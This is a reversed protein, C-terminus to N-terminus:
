LVASLFSIGKSTMGSKIRFRTKIVRTVHTVFHPTSFFVGEGKIGRGWSSLLTSTSIGESTM